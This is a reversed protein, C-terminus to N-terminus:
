SADDTKFLRDFYPLFFGFQAHPFKHHLSHRKSFSMLHNMPKEPFFDVNSHGLVNLLISFLPLMALSFVQFDHFCMIIPMVAGLLLGESWHFSYASFPSPVHSYHHDAHYKYLPKWHFSRHVVYFYIENWLFLVLTEILFTPGSFEFKIKYFGTRLGEYMVFSLIGFMFISMLSRKIETQVQKPRFDKQQYRKFFNKRVFFFYAVVSFSFYLAAFSVITLLFFEIRTLSLFAEELSNLM